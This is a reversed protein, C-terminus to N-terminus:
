ADKLNNNRHLSYLIILILTIKPVLYYSSPWALPFGLLLPIVFLQLYKDNSIILKVLFYCLILVFLIYVPLGYVLLIYIHENDMATSYSGFFSKGYGIIMGIPHEYSISLLYDVKDERKVYSSRELGLEFLTMLYRLESLVYVVLAIILFSITAIFKLYYKSNKQKFLYYILVGMLLLVLGIFATQSQSLFITVIGLLLAIVTMKKNTEDFKVYYVILVSLLVLIMLGHSSPDTSFGLSRRSIGLASVLHYESSYFKQLLIIFSINLSLYQSISLLFDLIIYFNIIKLLINLDFRIKTFVFFILFIFVIRGIEIFDRLDSLNFIFIRIVGFTYLISIIFFITLYEHKKFYVLKNFLILGVFLFSYIFIYQFYINPFFLFSGIFFYVLSNLSIRM